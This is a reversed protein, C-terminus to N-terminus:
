DDDDFDLDQPPVGPNRLMMFVQKGLGPQEDPNSFDWQRAKEAMKGTSPNCSHNDYKLPTYTYPTYDPTSTFMDFPLMADRAQVNNYTLGLLHAFLKHLSPIDLHSHSVYGRKIWPSAMVMLLRHNDVHDGGDQPDDEVVVVLSSKWLPSHSLADIFMGTAADNVAILTGPHPRGPSAGMTHDNPYWAHTFPKPTASLVRM